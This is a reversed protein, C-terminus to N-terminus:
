FVRAAPHTTTHFSRVLLRERLWLIRRYGDTDTTTPTNHQVNLQAHQLGSCSRPLPEIQKAFFEGQQGAGCAICPQETTHRTCGQQSAMHPDAPLRLQTSYAVGVNDVTSNPELGTPSMDKKREKQGAASPADTSTAFYTFLYLIYHCLLRHFIPSCFLVCSYSIGLRLTFFSVRSSFEALAAVQQQQIGPVIQQIKNKNKQPTPSVTLKTKKASEGELCSVACCEVTLYIM